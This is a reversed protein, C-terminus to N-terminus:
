VTDDQTITTSCRCIATRAFASCNDSLSGSSLSLLAGFIKICENPVFPSIITCDLLCLLIDVFRRAEISKINETLQLPVLPEDTPKLM